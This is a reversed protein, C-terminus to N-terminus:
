CFQIFVKPRHRNQFRFKEHKPKLIISSLNTLYYAFYFLMIFNLNNYCFMLEDSGIQVFGLGKKTRLQNVEWLVNM